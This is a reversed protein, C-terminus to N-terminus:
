PILICPTQKFFQEKEKKKKQKKGLFIYDNSSVTIKKSNAYQIAQELNYHFDLIAKTFADVQSAGIKERAFIAVIKKIIEDNNEPVIDIKLSDFSLYILNIASKIEANERTFKKFKVLSRIEKSESILNAITKFELKDKKYSNLMFKFRDEMDLYDKMENKKFKQYLLIKFIQISPEDSKISPYLNRIEQYFKNIAHNPPLTEFDIKNEKWKKENKIVDLLFIVGLPTIHREDLDSFNDFIEFGGKKKPLIHNRQNTTKSRSGYLLADCFLKTITHKTLRNKRFEDTNIKKNNLSLLNFECDVWDWIEKSWETKLDPYTVERVAQVLLLLGNQMERSFTSMINSHYIDHCTKELSNVIRTHIKKEGDDVGPYSLAGFRIQKRVGKEIEAITKNGLIPDMKIYNDGFRVRGLADRVSASLCMVHFNKDDNVRPLAELRILLAGLLLRGGIEYDERYREGNIIYFIQESKAFKSILFKFEDLQESNLEALYKGTLSPILIRKADETYDRNKDLIFATKIHEHDKFAQWRELITITESKTLEESAFLSVALQPLHFDEYIPDNWNGSRISKKLQRLKKANVSKKIVQNHVFEIFEADHKGKNNVPFLDSYGCLSLLDDFEKINLFDKKVMNHTEFKKLVAKVTKPDKIKKVTVGDAFSFAILTDKKKRLYITTDNYDRKERIEDDSLMLIMNFQNLNDQACRKRWYQQIRKAASDASLLTKYEPNFLKIENNLKRDYKAELPFVQTTIPGFYSKEKTRRYM